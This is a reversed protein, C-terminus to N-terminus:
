LVEQEGRAYEFFDHFGGRGGVRGSDDVDRASCVEPGRDM